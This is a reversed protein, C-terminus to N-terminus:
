KQECYVAIQKESLNIQRLKESESLLRTEGNNDTAEVKEFSTLLSLNDKATQCLTTASAGFAQSPPAAKIAVNSESQSQSPIASKIIIETYSVGLPPQQSYHTVNKKDVWQYVVTNAGCVYHFLILLLLLYKM